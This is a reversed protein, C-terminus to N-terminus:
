TADRQGNLKQVFLSDVRLYIGRGVCLLLKDDTARVVTGVIGELCGTHIQVSEGQVFVPIKEVASDSGESSM